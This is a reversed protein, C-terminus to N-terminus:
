SRGVETESNQSEFHLGGGIPKRKSKKSSPDLMTSQFENHSEPQDQIGDESHQAHAVELGGREEEEEERWNEERNGGGGERRSRKMKKGKEGRGEGM